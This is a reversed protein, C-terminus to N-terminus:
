MGRPRPWVEGERDRDGSQELSYLMGQAPASAGDVGVGVRNATLIARIASVPPGPTTSPIQGQTQAAIESHSLGSHSLASPRLASRTSPPQRLLPNPPAQPAPPLTRPGAVVCSSFAPRWAAHPTTAFGRAEAVRVPSHERAERGPQGVVVGESQAQKAPADDSGAGSHSIQIRATQQALNILRQSHHGTSPKAMIIQADSAAYVNHTQRRHLALNRLASFRLTCPPLDCLITGLSDPTSSFRTAIFSRTLADSPWIGGPLEPLWLTM